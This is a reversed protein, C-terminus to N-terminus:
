YDERTLNMQITKKLSDLNTRSTASIFIVEKGFFDEIEDKRENSIIDSKNVVIMQKIASVKSSYNELESLIDHYKQQYDDDFGDVVHLLIRNREIHKLFRIGMGKGDAAGKILGPIDAAVFSTDFDVTCVGLMPELTTFPYDSVKPTAESMARLLSSKGANPFGVFGVDAILSLKFYLEVYSAPGGTTVKRPAQNTSSKFKTNGLGGDGGVAVLIKDDDKTLDAILTPTVADYIRTGVPVPIYLDEGKRGAKLKGQGPQGNKGKYIKQRHFKLLTNIKPDTIIYVDGGKGGDGGDPGGRPVYKERRFSLCGSGGNGSSIQIKAEDIFSM